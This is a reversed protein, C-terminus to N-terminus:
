IYHSTENNHQNIREANFDWNKWIFEYLSFRHVKTDSYREKVTVTNATIATITGTYILNFSGYVAVDGINFTLDFARGNIVNQGYGYIGWIRISKKPEIDANWNPNTSGEHVVGGRRRDKEKIGNVHIM